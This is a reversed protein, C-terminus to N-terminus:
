KLLFYKNFVRDATKISEIHRDVTKIFCCEISSKKAAIPSEAIIYGSAYVILHFNMYPLGGADISGDAYVPMSLIVKRIFYQACCQLLPLPYPRRMGRCHQVYDTSAGNYAIIIFM